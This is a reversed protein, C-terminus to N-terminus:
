MKSLTEYQEEITKLRNILEDKKKICNQLNSERQDKDTRIKAIDKQMPDILESFFKNKIFEIMQDKSHFASELYPMPDFGSNIKNIESLVASVNENHSVANVLVDLTGFSAGKM